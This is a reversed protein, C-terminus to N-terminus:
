IETIQISPTCVSVTVDEPLPVTCDTIVTTQGPTTFGPLTLVIDKTCIDFCQSVFDDIAPELYDYKCHNCEVGYHYKDKIWRARDQAAKVALLNM